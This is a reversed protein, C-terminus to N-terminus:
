AADVVADGAGAAHAADAADAVDPQMLLADAGAASVADPHMLGCWYCRCEVGAADAADPQM